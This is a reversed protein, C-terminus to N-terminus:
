ALYQTERAEKRCVSIRYRFERKSVAEDAEVYNAGVSTGSRVLQAIIPSSIPGRPTDGAFQVVQEGFAATREALDYAPPKELVHNTNTMPAQDNNM